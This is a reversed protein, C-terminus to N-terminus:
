ESDASLWGNGLLDPFPQFDMRTLFHAKFFFVVQEDDAFLYGLRREVFPQALQFM